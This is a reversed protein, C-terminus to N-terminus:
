DGEKKGIVSTPGVIGGERIKKIFLSYSSHMLPSKVGEIIFRLTTNHENKSRRSFYAFQEYFILYNGSAKRLSQLSDLHNGVLFTPLILKASFLGFYSNLLKITHLEVGAM